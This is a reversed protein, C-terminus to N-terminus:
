YAIFQLNRDGSVRKISRAVSRAVRRKLPGGTRRSRMEDALAPLWHVDFRLRSLLSRLSEEDFYQVHSPAGLLAGAMRPMRKSLGVSVDGFGPVKGFLVGGPKLLERSRILFAGPNRLHEIVDWMTIVDFKQGFDYTLYDGSVAKLGKSQCIAASAESVDIGQVSYGAECAAAMFDGSGCGVDLVDAPAPKHPAIQRQLVM